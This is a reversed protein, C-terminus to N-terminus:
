PPSTVVCNVSADPLRRLVDLADGHFLTVSDDQYYAEPAEDGTGDGGRPLNLSTSMEESM